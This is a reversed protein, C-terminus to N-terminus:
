LENTKRDTDLPQYHAIKLSVDPEDTVNSNMALFRRLETSRNTIGAM